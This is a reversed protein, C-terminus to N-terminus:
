YPSIIEESCDAAIVDDLQFVGRLDAGGKIIRTHTHLHAHTHTRTQKEKHSAVHTKRRKKQNADGFMENVSEATPANIEWRDIPGPGCISTCHRSGEDEEM